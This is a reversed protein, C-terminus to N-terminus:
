DEDPPTFSPESRNALAVLEDDNDFRSYDIPRHPIPSIEAVEEIRYLRQTRRIRLEKGKSVQDLLASLRPKAESITLARIM